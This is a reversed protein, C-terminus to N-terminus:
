VPHERLQPPPPLSTPVINLGEFPLTVRPESHHHPRRVFGCNDGGNILEPEAWTPSHRVRERELGRGFQRFAAGIKSQLIELAAQLVKLFAFCIAHVNTRVLQVVVFM